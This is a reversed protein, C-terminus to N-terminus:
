LIYIFKGFGDEIVDFITHDKYDKCIYLIGIAFPIMMLIGIASVVWSSREALYATWSLTYAMNACGADFILFLVQERTFKNYDM